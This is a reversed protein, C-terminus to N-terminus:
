NCIMSGYVQTCMVGDRARERAQICNRWGDTQPKYGLKECYPAQRAIAKEAKEQPSVACGALLLVILAYRMSGWPRASGGGGKARPQKHGTKMVPM